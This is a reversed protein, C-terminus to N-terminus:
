SLATTKPLLFAFCATGESERVAPVQNLVYGLVQTWGSSIGRMETKHKPFWEGKASLGEGATAEAHGYPSLNQLLEHRSANNLRKMGARLFPM